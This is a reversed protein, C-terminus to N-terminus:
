DSRNTEEPMWSLLATKNRRSDVSAEKVGRVTRRAFSLVDEDSRMVGQGM